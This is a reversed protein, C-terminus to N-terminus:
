QDERPVSVPICLETVLDAARRTLMERPLTYGEEDAGFRRYIRKRPSHTALGARAAAESLRAEVHDLGAYSGTHVASLCAAGVSVLTAGAADIAGERVPIGVERAGNGHVLLFPPLPGRAGANAVLRETEEFLPTLDEDATAPTLRAFQPDEAVVRFASLGEPGLRDVIALLSAIVGLRAEIQAREAELARAQASLAEAEGGPNLSRIAAISLGAERLNLIRRAADIQEEVYFRYGNRSDTEAPVLLGQEAYFRLAKVSLGARRAFAGIQM